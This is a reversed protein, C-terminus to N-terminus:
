NMVSRLKPDNAARSAAEGLAEGLAKEIKAQDLMPHEIMTTSEYKGIFRAGSKTNLELEIKARAEATSTPFGPSVQVALEKVDVNLRAPADFLVIKAGEAKFYSELAERVVIGVNRSPEVRRGNIDAVWSNPRSDLVKSISLSSGALSAGHTGPEPIRDVRVSDGLGPACSALLLSALLVFIKNM